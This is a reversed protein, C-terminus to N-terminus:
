RDEETRTDARSSFTAPESSFLPPQRDSEVYREAEQVFWAKLTLGRHSLATYLQSKLDPEIEIVVRGSEGRAMWTIYCMTCLM